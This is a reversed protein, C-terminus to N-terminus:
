KTKQGDIVKGYIEYLDAIVKANNQRSQGVAMARDSYLRATDVDTMSIIAHALAYPENAPVLIGSDDRLMSANGGINNAIVPLGLMMAEAIANSSNELYSPHVYMDSALLGNRITTGDVYGHLVIGVEKPIVDEKRCIYREIKSNDSIGYVNWEIEHGLSRLLKATKVVIDFGKYWIDSVTSTIVIKKGDYRYQWKVGSFDGRMLEDCHFYRSGPSLMQSMDHDWDTRGIWNKVIPAIALENDKRKIFSKYDHVMGRKLIYRNIWGDIKAADKVGYGGPYYYYYNSTLGQIHVVLPYSTLHKIALAYSNEIGWIHVIDPKYEDVKQAILLANDEAHKQEDRTYRLWLKKLPNRGSDNALPIYTVNGRVVNGKALEPACLFCIGFELDPYVETLATELAGIWGGTGKVKDNSFNGGNPAIWMVRM